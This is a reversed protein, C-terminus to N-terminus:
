EDSVEQIQAAALGYLLALLAFYFRRTLTVEFMAVLCFTVMTALILARVKSDKIRFARWIPILTFMIIAGLGFLGQESYAELYLNHVWPIIFNGKDFAWEVSFPNFLFTNPGTGFIVASLSTHATSAEAWLSLRTTSQNGLFWATAGMLLLLSFTGFVILPRHERLWAPRATFAKAVSLVLLATVLSLLAIKSQLRYSVYVSLALYLALSIYAKLNLRYEDDMFIFAFSPLCLGLILADNPVILTSMRAHSVLASASVDGAIHSAILLAALHM